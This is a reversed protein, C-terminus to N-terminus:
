PEQDMQDMWNTDDLSEELARRLMEAAFTDSPRLGLAQHYHEIAEDLRGSMHDVFGLSTYTSARKPCLGLATEYHKSSEKLLNLKRCCHGLNCYTAEWTLMLTSPLHSCLSLVTEFNKKAEEWQGNKYHVVGLENYILPDNQNMKLAQQFYTKSLEMNNTRLYEMGTCLLPVHSGPFLRQATRYAAMAQDSEDQAAFSNGFGIWAPAFSKEKTTAKSYYRRALEFKGITYYYCAVAYWAIAREPYAEVLNHAVYFLESKHGLEVLASVHISACRVNYVDLERVWTTLEYARSPNQEYLCCEATSPSRLLGYTSHPGHQNLIYEIVFFFSSLLSSVM